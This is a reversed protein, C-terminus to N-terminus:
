YNGSVTRFICVEELRSRKMPKLVASIHRTSSDMSQLLFYTAGQWVFPRVHLYRFRYSLRSGSESYNQLTLEGDEDKQGCPLNQCHGHANPFVYPSDKWLVTESLSPWQGDLEKGSSVFYIDADHAHNSPHFGYVVEAKGDNDIDFQNRSFHGSYEYLGHDQADSFDSDANFPPEVTWAALGFDSSEKKIMGKCIASDQGHEIVVTGAKPQKATSVPYEALDRKKALRSGPIAECSEAANEPVDGAQETKKSCLVLETLSIVIRSMPNTTCRGAIQHRSLWKRKDVWVSLWIEPDAGCMGYPMTSGESVKVRVPKGASIFCEGYDIHGTVRFEQRKPRAEKPRISGHWNLDPDENWLTNLQITVRQKVPDCSVEVYDWGYDAKATGILLLCTILAVLCRQLSYMPSPLPQIELILLSLM